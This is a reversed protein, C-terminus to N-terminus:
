WIFYPANQFPFSLIFFLFQMQRYDAITKHGLNALLCSGALMGLAGAEAALPFAQGPQPHPATRCLHSELARFRAITLGPACIKWPSPLYYVLVGDSDPCGGWIQFVWSCPWLRVRHSLGSHSIQTLKHMYGPM